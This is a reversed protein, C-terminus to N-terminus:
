TTALMVCFVVFVPRSIKQHQYRCGTASLSVHTIRTDM